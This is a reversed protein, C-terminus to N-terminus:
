SVVSGKSARELTLMYSFAKHHEVDTIRFYAGNPFKPGVLRVRVTSNKDVPNPSVVSLENGGLVTEEDSDLWAPTIPGVKVIGSSIDDFAIDIEDGFTVKPPSNSTGETLETLTVTHAGAGREDGAWTAVEVYVRYPRLGFDAAIGRVCSALERVCSRFSRAVAPSEATPAVLPWLPLLM